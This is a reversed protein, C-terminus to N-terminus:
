LAAGVYPLALERWNKVIFDFPIDKFLPLISVWSAITVKLRDVLSELSSQNDEFCRANTEQWITRLVVLFSSRWLARGKELGIEM